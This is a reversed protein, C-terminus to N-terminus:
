RAYLRYVFQSEIKEENRYVLEVIQVKYIPIISNLSLKAGTGDINFTSHTSRQIM